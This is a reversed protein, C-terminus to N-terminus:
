NLLKFLNYQYRNCGMVCALAVLYTIKNRM